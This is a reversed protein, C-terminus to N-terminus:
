KGLDRPSLVAPRENAVRFNPDAMQKMLGGLGGAESSAAEDASVLGKSRAFNKSQEAAKSKGRKRPPPMDPANSYVREDFPAVKSQDNAEEVIDDEYGKGQVVYIRTDFETHGKIYHVFNEPVIIEVGPSGVVEKRVGTTKDIMTFLCFGEMIRYIRPLTYHCRISSVGSATVKEEFTEFEGKYGTIIFGSSTRISEEPIIQNEIPAPAKRTRKRLQSILVQQGM